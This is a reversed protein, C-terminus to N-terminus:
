GNPLTVNEFQIIIDFKCEILEKNIKDIKLGNNIVNIALDLERM